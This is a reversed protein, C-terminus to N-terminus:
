ALPRVLLRPNVVLTITRIDVENTRYTGLDELTVNGPNQSPVGKKATKEQNCCMLTLLLKVPM